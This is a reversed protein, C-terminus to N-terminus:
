GPLLDGLSTVIGPQKTSVIAAVFIPFVILGVSLWLLLHLGIAELDRRELTVDIAHRKTAQLLRVPYQILGLM